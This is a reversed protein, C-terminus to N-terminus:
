KDINSLINISESELERVVVYKPFKDKNTLKYEDTYFDEVEKVMNAREKYILADIDQKVTVYTASVEAIIFNSFILCGM